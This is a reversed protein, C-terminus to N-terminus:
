KRSHTAVEDPEITGYVGEACDDFKNSGRDFLCLKDHEDEIILFWFDHSKGEMLQPM